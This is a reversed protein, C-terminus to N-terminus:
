KEKEWEDRSIMWLALNAPTEHLQGTRRAGSYGARLSNPENRCDFHVLFGALKVVQITYDSQYIGLLAYPKLVACCHRSGAALFRAEQHISSQNVLAANGYTGRTPDLQCM